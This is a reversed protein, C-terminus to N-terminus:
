YYFLARSNDSKVFLDSESSIVMGEFTYFKTGDGVRKM